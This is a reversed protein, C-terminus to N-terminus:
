GVVHKHVHKHTHKPRPTHTWSPSPCRSENDDGEADGVIVSLLLKIRNQLEQRNPYHIILSAICFVYTGSPAATLSTQM